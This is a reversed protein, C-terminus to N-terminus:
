EEVFTGPDALQAVRKRAPVPFHHSCQACVFLSAELEDDRYHSQCRPCTNPHRKGDQAPPASKQEISVDIHGSMLRGLKSGPDPPPTATRTSDPGPLSESRPRSVPSTPFSARRGRSTRRASGT